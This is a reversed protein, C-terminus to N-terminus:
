CIGEGFSSIKQINIFARTISLRKRTWFRSKPSHIMLIQSSSSLNQTIFNQPQSLSLLLSDLSLAKLTSLSFSNNKKKNPKSQAHTALAVFTLKEKKYIMVCERPCAVWM